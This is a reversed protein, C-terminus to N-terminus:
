LDSSKKKKKQLEGHMYRDYCLEKLYKRNGKNTDQVIHAMYEHSRPRGRAVIHGEVDREIIIKKLLSEHRLRWHRKRISHKEMTKTKGKDTIWCGSIRVREQGRYDIKKWRIQIGDLNWTDLSHARCEM